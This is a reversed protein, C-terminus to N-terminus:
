MCQITEMDQKWGTRIRSKNPDFDGSRRCPKRDSCRQGGLIHQQMEVCRRALADARYKQTCTYQHVVLVVVVVVVVVVVGVVMVVLVVVM